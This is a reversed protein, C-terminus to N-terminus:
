GANFFPPARLGFTCVESFSYTRDADPPQDFLSHFDQDAILLDPPLVAAVVTLQKSFSDQIGQIFTIIYGDAPHIFHSFLHGLKKSLDNDDHSHGAAHHDAHHHSVLDHDGEDHHHHPIINHGLLLAYAVTLLFFAAYKKLMLVFTPFNTKHLLHM